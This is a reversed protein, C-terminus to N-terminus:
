AGVTVSDLQRGGLARYRRKKERDTRRRCERCRRGGAERITNAEDFPHGRHCHTKEANRRVVTWGRMLNERRTVPECHDPNVCGRRRCLHDLDLGGPIEGVLLEYAVRHAPRMRGDLWFDGYGNRDTTGQWMWCDGDVEVKSWLRDVGDGRDADGLLYGLVPCAGPCGSVSIPKM